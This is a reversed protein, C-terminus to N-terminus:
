NELISKGVECSLCKRFICFENNLEILGQSDIASNISVGLQRWQKTINNIEAPMDSLLELVLEDNKHENLLHKRYILFPAVANNIIRDQTTKSIVLKQKSRTSKSFTFHDEWFSDLEFGFIKELSKKLQDQSEFSLSGPSIRLIIEAFEALKRTPYSHPRVGKFKWSSKRMSVLAYKRKLLCWHKKLKVQYDTNVEDLFGAIGFVLAKVRENNWREKYLVMLPLKTALEQMPTKNLRGGLAQAIAYLVVKNQNLNQSNNIMMLELGKREMRQFFSLQIQQDLAVGMNKLSQGCPKSAKSKLINEYSRYHDLNILSKLELTPVNRNEIKVDKDFSYVVHLVVNSYAEDHQHKHAYWDSSKVHLEINGTWVIGDIKITGNFFDPGADHNHWGVNIVEVERGDILELKSNDFNKSKWLYHLYNEEM